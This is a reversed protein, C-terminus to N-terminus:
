ELKEASNVHLTHSPLAFRIDHHNFEKMIKQNIKESMAMYAYYDPPHYWYFVIINLSDRNFEDFFVRPPLDHEMGEHQDLIKKIIEVALEVKELPTDYSLSLNFVRRIHKRRGINEIDTSAMHENPFSSQHGNLLRIKTSRLGIEEVVGDHGKVVIRQGVRYPKDLLIMISGIFNKITDQAALAIAIGGVGLGAFLARVNFGYNDLWVLVGFLVVMLKLFKKAPKLLPITSVQGSRELRTMWWVSGQEILMICAWTFAIIVLIDQKMISQITVSPGIFDIVQDVLFVWLLIRFPVIGFSESPLDKGRSKIKLIWKLLLSVLYAIVFVLICGIIFVVYQWLEWGLFVVNPFFQSLAQEFPKYGFHEYMTPIQAVTKHSIKWILVGDSREVRQLLIDITQDPTKVRGLLEHSPPVGEESKGEPNNSLRELDIVLSRDLIIKLQSALEEGMPKKKSVPFAEIDLYNLAIKFKGDRTAQIFGEMMTRPTGRNYDDLPGSINVKKKIFSESKDTETESVNETKANEAILGSPVMVSIVLAMALIILRTFVTINKIHM